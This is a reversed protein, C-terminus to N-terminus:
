FDSFFYDKELVWIHAYFLACPSSSIRISHKVRLCALCVVNEFLVLITCIVCNWIVLFTVYLVNSQSMTSGTYINGRLLQSIM